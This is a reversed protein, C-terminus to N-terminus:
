LPEAHTEAFETPPVRDILAVATVFVRVLEVAVEYVTAEVSWDVTRRKVADPVAVTVTPVAVAKVAPCRTSM